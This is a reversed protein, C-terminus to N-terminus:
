PHLQYYLITIKGNGNAIRSSMDEQGLVPRPLGKTAPLSGSTNQSQTSDADPDAERMVTDMDSHDECGELQKFTPRKVM